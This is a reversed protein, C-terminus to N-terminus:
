NPSGPRFTVTYGDSGKLVSAYKASQVELVYWEGRSTTMYKGNTVVDEWLGMVAAESAYKDGFKGVFQNNATGVGRQTVGHEWGTASTGQELWIINGAADITVALTRTLSGKTAIHIIQEATFGQKALNLAINSEQVSLAAIEAQTFEAALLSSELATMEVAVAGFSYGDWGMFIMEPGYEVVAGWKDDSTGLLVADSGCGYFFESGDPGNSPFDTFSITSWTFSIAINRMRSSTKMLSSKFFELAPPATNAFL